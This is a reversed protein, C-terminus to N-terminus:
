KVELTFINGPLQVIQAIFVGKYEYLYLITKLKTKIYPDHFFHLDVNREGIYKNLAEQVEYINLSRFIEIM